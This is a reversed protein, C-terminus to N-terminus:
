PLGGGDSGLSKFMNLRKKAEEDGGAAAKEYWKRADHLNKTVGLGQEFLHGLNRMALEDGLGASREYWRRAEAYNTNIGLGHEFLYGLNNMARRNGRAASREYLERAVIFDQSVGRGREYLFGLNLLAIDLNRQAAREYWKRAEMLNQATGIGVDYSHGLNFMAVPNGLKSATEYLHLATGYDKRAYAIRGAQFAFRAVSPYHRLAENCALTAREVAISEIEVGAIDSPRSDDLPSAALRDCDTVLTAMNTKSPTPETPPNLYVATRPLSLDVFPRQEGKTAAIVDDRVRRFLLDIELGQMEIYKLLASSFPSNRGNGDDATTGAASAYAVVMNHTSQVRALGRPIGRKQGDRGRIKAAFPNNRCADLIVIGLTSARSVADMMTKLAIAENPVDSESKLKADVPILWNQGGVNLGHGAYFVFAIDAGQAQNGFEILSKRFDEYTGDSMLTVSFGLRELAVAIDASDNPPNPLKPVHAYAGNGILLAIRNGAAGAASLCVVCIALGLLLKSLLKRLGLVLCDM